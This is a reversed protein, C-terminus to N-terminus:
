RRAGACDTTSAVTATYADGDRGTIRIPVGASESVVPDVRGDDRANHELFLKRGQLCIFRGRDMKVPFWVRPEIAKPGTAIHDYFVRNDENEVPGNAGAFKGLRLKGEPFNRMAETQAIIVTGGTAKLEAILEYGALASEDLLEGDFFVLTTKEDPKSTLPEFVWGTKDEYTTKVWSGKFGLITEHGSIGDSNWEIIKGYPIKALQESDVTPESRLVIGDKVAIRSKIFDKADASSKATEPEGGCSAFISLCILSVVFWKSITLM